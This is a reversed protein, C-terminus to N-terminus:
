MADELTKQLSKRLETLESKWKIQESPNGKTKRIMKLIYALKESDNAFETVGVTQELDVEEKYFMYHLTPSYQKSNRDKSRIHIYHKGPKFKARVTAKGSKHNFKNKPFYIPITNIEMFYDHPELNMVFFEITRGSVVNQSKQKMIKIKPTAPRRWIVPIHYVPSEWRSDESSQIHLVYDGETFAKIRLEGDKIDKYEPLPRSNPQQDLIYRYRYRASPPSQKWSFLLEPYGATEDLTWKFDIMAFNVERSDHLYLHGTPQQMIIKYDGETTFGPLLKMLFPLQYRSFKGTKKPELIGSFDLWYQSTTSNSIFSIRNENKVVQVKIQDTFQMKSDSIFKRKTLRKNKVNYLWLTNGSDLVFLFVEGKMTFYASSKLPVLLEYNEYRGKSWVGWVFSSGDQYIYNVSYNKWNLYYALLPTKSQIINTRREDHYIKLLYHEKEKVYLLFVPIRGIGFSLDIDLIKGVMPFVDRYVSKISKDYVLLDMQEKNESYAVIADADGYPYHRILEPTFSFTHIRNLLPQKQKPTVSYLKNNQTAFFFGSWGNTKTPVFQFKYLPWKVKAKPKAYLSSNVLGFVIIILLLLRKM